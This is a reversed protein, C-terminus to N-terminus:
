GDFHRRYLKFAEVSQAPLYKFMANPNGALETVLQLNNEYGMYEKKMDVVLDHVNRQQYVSAKNYVVQAGLAEVYYAAWIDDMRGVHPFVFYDKLLKGSIFTNQSNFPSLKNAALPFYKEAFKCEPAYIMRCVADIDPDGDWFDAQVQPTIIKRSKRSYDRRPMLQLPYGRHWLNPHNTAGVPDFAPLDTEYFNVEAPRGIMLNEGWGARPINDDDVLAVIDAKMQAAWLLGFNRRQICRWGIADSLAKDFKEQEESSVYIGRKLKYDKPTKLDGIVVLEWDLNAEFRLIAETPPNITTTVIVKKM